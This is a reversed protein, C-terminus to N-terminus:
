IASRGLSWFVGQLPIPPFAFPALTASNLYLRGERFLAEMHERRGYKVLEKHDTGRASVVGAAKRCLDGDVFPRAEPVRPHRNSPTPPEGRLLMETLVHQELRYWNEDTTLGMRGSRKLVLPNVWIDQYRQHLAERTEHRSYPNAGYERVWEDHQKDGLRDDDAM